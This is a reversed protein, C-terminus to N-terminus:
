QVHVQSANMAMREPHRVSIGILRNGVWTIPREASGRPVPNSAFSGAVNKREQADEAMTPERRFGHLKLASLSTGSCTKSSRGMRTIAEAAVYGALEDVHRYEQGTSCLYADTKSLIFYAHIPPNNTREPGGTWEL